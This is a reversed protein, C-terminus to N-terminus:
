DTAQFLTMKVTKLSKRPKIEEKWGGFDLAPMKKAASGAERKLESGQGLPYTM